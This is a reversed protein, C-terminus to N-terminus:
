SSLGYKKRRQELAERGGELTRCIHDQISYRSLYPESATDDSRNVVNNEISGSRYEFKRSSNRAEAGNQNAVIVEEADAGLVINANHTVVIIQRRKKNDKIFKRLESYISRNDLDDEPQDILIPCNGKELEIILELLVLGKKGPSMHALQDGDSTVIYHVNYWDSFLARVFDEESVGSKLQLSAGDNVTGDLSSWIDSLLKDTYDGCSLNSLDHGCARGFQIFRRSNLNNLVGGTFDSLRWAPEASFTLNSSFTSTLDGIAKCYVSYASLYQSRSSIIIGRLRDLESQLKLLGEEREKAELLRRREDSLKTMIKSLQTSQEVKPRLACLSNEIGDLEEALKERQVSLDSIIRRAENKWLDSLAAGLTDMANRLADATSPSLALALSMGQFQPESLAPATSSAIASSDNELEALRAEIKTKRETLRAYEELEEKTASASEALESSESELEQIASEFQEPGGNEVIARRLGDLDRQTRFYAEISSFTQARIRDRESELIQFSKSVADDQMLVEGILGSTGEESEPNDVTRNLFTQPLYIIKRQESPAHDRWTVEVEEAPEFRKSECRREQEAAYEPAIAWALNRLLMSKGTSRGGIICTLSDSFVVPKDQFQQDGFRLSEISRHPDLNDPREKQIAVRDKPECLVQLLGEFTPDAKIWCYKECDPEFLHEFDHADSAVICPRPVGFEEESWGREGSAWERTKVSSSFFIHAQRTIARRLAYGRGSWQANPLAEDVPLAIVYKGSFNACSQLARLIERSDIALRELGTRYHGYHSGNQTAIEKGFAEINAKNLPLTQAPDATQFNLAGLFNRKIEAPDVDDSFIVHYDIFEDKCEEGKRIAFINSLRLEINPFVAIAMVKDRLEVDEFLQEMKEPRSLYDNRIKAYGDVSFYDTIGIACVGKEVAISFLNKVYKDFDITDDASLGFQNNLISYPTHVHLDWKRWESGYESNM